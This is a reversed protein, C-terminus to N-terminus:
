LLDLNSCIKLQGRILAEDADRVSVAGPLHLLRIATTYYTALKKNGVIILESSANNKLDKLETGILLGSLYFYNEQDSFKAFLQNTRVLFSGHLLNTEIGHSVGTEFSIQNKQHEWDESEQVSVSLISKKSLLEFYEGTM